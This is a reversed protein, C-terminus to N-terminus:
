ANSRWWRAVLAFVWCPFAALALVPDSLVLAAAVPVLGLASFVIVFVAPGHGAYSADEQLLFPTTLAWFLLGGVIDAVIVLPFRINPNGIDRTLYISSGLIAAWGLFMLTKRFPTKAWGWDPITQRDRGM